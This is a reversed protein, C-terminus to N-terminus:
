YLYSRMISLYFKTSFDGVTKSFNGCTRLPSNKSECQLLGVEIYSSPVLGFRGNLEAEYWNPDVQKIVSVIDGKNFSLESVCLVVPM